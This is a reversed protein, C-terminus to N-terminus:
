LCRVGSAEVLMRFSRRQLSQAENSLALTDLICAPTTDGRLQLHITCQPIDRSVKCAIGEDNAGCNCRPTAYSSDENGVRIVFRSVFGLAFYRGGNEHEEYLQFQLDTDQFGEEARRRVADHTGPPLFYSVGSAAQIPGSSVSFSSEGPYEQPPQRRRRERRSM